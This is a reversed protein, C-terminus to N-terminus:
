ATIDLMLVQMCFDWSLQGNNNKDNKVHPTEEDSVPEPFIVATDSRKLIEALQVAESMGPQPLGPAPMRETYYHFM